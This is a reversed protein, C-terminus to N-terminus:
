EESLEEEKSVIETKNLEVHRKVGTKSVTDFILMGNEERVEDTFYPYDSGKVRIIVKSM